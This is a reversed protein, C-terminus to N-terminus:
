PDSLMKPRPIVMALQESLNIPTIILMDARRKFTKRLSTLEFLRGISRTPSRSTCDRLIRCKLCYICLVQAVSCSRKIYGLVQMNSNAAEFWVELFISNTTSLKLVTEEFVIHRSLINM